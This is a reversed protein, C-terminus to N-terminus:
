VYESWAKIPVKNLDVEVLAKIFLEAKKKDTFLPINQDVAFRRIAFDDNIDKKVNRDVINIALDVERKRFVQLINPAKGEHIKFLKRASVGNKNLFEATKETSFVFLTLM